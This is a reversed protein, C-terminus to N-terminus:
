ISASTDYHLHVLIFQCLCSEQAPEFPSICLSALQVQTAKRDDAKPDDDNCCDNLQLKLIDRFKKQHNRCTILVLNSGGVVPKKTLATHLYVQLTSIDFTSNHLM